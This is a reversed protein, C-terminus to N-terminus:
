VDKGKDKSTTKETTRNDKKEFFRKLVSDGFLLRRQIIQIIQIIFFAGSTINQRAVQM